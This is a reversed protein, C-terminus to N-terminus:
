KELLVVRYRSGWDRRLWHADRRFESGGWLACPVVWGGGRGRLVSGFFFHYNGDKLDEPAKDPHEIIYKWYEIGPIDYRDAYNQILYEAVEPLPKGRMPALDLVKIKEPPISEWDMGATEPNITYEGFKSADTDKVLGKWEIETPEVLSPSQKAKKSDEEGYWGKFTEQFFSQNEREISEVDGAFQETRKGKSPEEGALFQAAEEAAKKGRVNWPDLEALEKLSVHSEKASREKLETIAEASGRARKAADFEFTNAPLGLDKATVTRLLGKSALIKATLARDAEPYERFTLATKLRGDLFEAFSPRNKPNSQRETMWAEFINEVTGQTFVLKKLAPRRGSADMTGTLRGMDESVSGTYATQVEEMAECFKPLTENLDSWSLDVSGNQNMLRSLMIDYAEEKPMYPIELNNQEFERAIEPPLDSREPNKESKLNATFIMQFGPKIEVMGNGMVNVRDGVKANLVGKIFVMQEKPLATFEDFVVTKGEIMGRALPGFVDITEIAGGAAPRIGTKGWINAERTQPNCYVMEAADGTFHEAAYRALSTKGTGTPGHLFMPKGAIMRNGIEHLSKKVSPTAAIHGEEHLGRRYSVLDFGRKETPYEKEAEALEGDVREKEEHAAALIGVRVRKAYPDMRDERLTRLEFDALTSEQEALSSLSDYSPGLEKRIAEEDVWKKTSSEAAEKHKMLLEKAKSIEPVGGESSPIKFQSASEEVGSLQEAIKEGLKRVLASEDKLSRDAPPIGERIDRLVATSSIGLDELSGRLVARERAVEHFNVEKEGDIPETESGPVRGIREKM